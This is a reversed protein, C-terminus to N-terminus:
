SKFYCNPVKNSSIFSTTAVPTSVSQGEGLFIFLQATFPMAAGPFSPSNLNCCKLTNKLLRAGKRHVFKEGAGTLAFRAKNTSSAFKQSTAKCTYFQLPLQLASTIIQDKPFHMNKHVWFHDNELARVAVKLTNAMFYNNMWTIYQMPYKRSIKLLSLELWQTNKRLQHIPSLAASHSMSSFSRPTWPM